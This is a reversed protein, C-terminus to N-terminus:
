RTNKLRYNTYGTQPTVNLKNQLEEPKLRGTKAVVNEALTRSNAIQAYTKVLKQYMMVDNYNNKNESKEEM